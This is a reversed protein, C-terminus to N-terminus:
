TQVRLCILRAVLALYVTALLLLWARAILGKVLLLVLALRRFMYHVLLKALGQVFRLVAAWKPAALVLL